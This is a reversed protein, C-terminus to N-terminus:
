PLPPNIGQLAAQRWDEYAPFLSPSRETWEDDCQRWYGRIRDLRPDRAAYCGLAHRWRAAEAQSFISADIWEVLRLWRFEPERPHAARYAAEIELFGPCRAALIEETQASPAGHEHTLRVWFAFARWEIFETITRALEDATVNKAEAEARRRSAEGLAIEASTFGRPSKMRCDREEFRSVAQHQAGNRVMFWSLSRHSCSAFLRPQVTREPYECVKSM